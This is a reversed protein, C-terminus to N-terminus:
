RGGGPLQPPCTRGRGESGPWPQPQEDIKERNGAWNGTSRNGTRLSVTGAAVGEENKEVEVKADLRISLTVEDARQDEKLHNTTATM